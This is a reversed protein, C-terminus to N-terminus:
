SRSSSLNEAAWSRAETRRGPRRASPQHDVTQKSVFIKLDGERSETSISLCGSADVDWAPRGWSDAKQYMRMWNAEEVESWHRYKDGLFGLVHENAFNVDSYTVLIAFDSGDEGGEMRHIAVYVIGTGARAAPTAAGSRRVAGVAPVLQKNPYVTM